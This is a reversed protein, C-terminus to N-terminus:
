LQDRIKQISLSQDKLDLLDLIRLYDHIMAINTDVRMSSVITEHISHWEELEEQIEAVEGLRSLADVAHYTEQIGQRGKRWKKIIWDSCARFREPKTGLFDLSAVACFTKHLSPKWGSSTSFGGGGSRHIQIWGIHEVRDIRHTQGTLDLLEMGKYTSELDSPAGPILGFGGDQHECQLIWLITQENVTGHIQSEATAM